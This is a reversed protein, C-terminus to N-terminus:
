TPSYMLTFTKTGLAPITGVYAYVLSDYGKLGTYLGDSIANFAFACANPGSAVNAQIFGQQYGKWPAANRLTLGYFPSAYAAWGSVGQFSSALEYVSHGDPQINAFRVLYAV